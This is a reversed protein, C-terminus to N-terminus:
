LAGGAHEIAELAIRRGTAVHRTIADKAADLDGAEFAEVIAGHETALYSGGDLQGGRIVQMMLNVSLDRYFSSLLANGALDIQYEHFAANAADTDGPKNACLVVDVPADAGLSAVLRTADDVGGYSVVVWTLASM